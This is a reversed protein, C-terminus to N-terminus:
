PGAGITETRQFALAVEAETRATGDHTRIRARAFLVHAAEFLLDTVGTFHM